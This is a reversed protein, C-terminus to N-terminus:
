SINMEDIQHKTPFWHVELWATMRLSKSTNRGTSFWQSLHYHPFLGPLNVQQPVSYSM